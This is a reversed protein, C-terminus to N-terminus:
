LESQLFTIVNSLFNDQKKTHVFHGAGAIKIFHSNPFMHRINGIQQDDEWVPRKEGTIFLTPGHFVQEIYTM